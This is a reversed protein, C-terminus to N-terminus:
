AGEETAPDAPPLPPGWLNVESVVWGGEVQSVVMLYWLTNENLGVSWTINDTIYCLTQSPDGDPKNACDGIFPSQLEIGAYVAIADEATPQPPFNPDPAPPPDVKVLPVETAEPTAEETAEGDSGDGSEGDSASGQTTSSSNGDETSEEFSPDDGACAAALLLVAAVLGILSKRTLVTCISPLM